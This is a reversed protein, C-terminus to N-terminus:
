EDYRESEEEEFERRAEAVRVMQAAEGKVTKTKSFLSGGNKVRESWRELFYMILNVIIVVLVIIVGAVFASDQNSGDRAFMYMSVALTAGSGYLSPSAQMTGSTFILAASEAVVKGICLIIASFIGTLSQPLLIRFITRVKGVGMATSADLYEKPVARLSNEVTNVVTPLCMISMTLVGALLTYGRGFMQTQVFLTYGLLGIIIGPAGALVQICFRIIKIVWSDENAYQSLWVAALIGLPVCIILTLGIMVLTTEIQSLLSIGGHLPNYPAFVTSFNEFLLPCGNVLIYGIVFLFAVFTVATIVVSAWFWIDTCIRANKRYTFDVAKESKKSLDMTRYRPGSSVKQGFIKARIWLVLKSKSNASKEKGAINVLLNIVITFVFLVVGVCFLAARAALDSSTFSSFILTTMTNFSSFLGGPLVNANGCIMSLAIGEGLAKGVGLICAVVIGRKASPLVMRFVTQNRTNGMAKSAQVFDPNVADLSNVSVNVITPITMFALVLISVLLGEGQGSPNNQFLPVLVTLGFFGWVVSPIGAFLAILQNLVAKFWGGTYRSIIVSTLVGFPIGIVLAGVVTALSGVISTLAGFVREGSEELIDWQMGFLDFVGGQAGLGCAEVILFVGMAITVGVAIVAMVFTFWRFFGNDSDAREIIEEAPPVEETVEGTSTALAPRKFLRVFFAKIKELVNKM